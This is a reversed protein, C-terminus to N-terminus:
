LELRMERPLVREGLFRRGWVYEPEFKSPQFLITRGDKMTLRLLRGTLDAGRSELSDPSVKTWGSGCGSGVVAFAALVLSSVLIRIRASVKM